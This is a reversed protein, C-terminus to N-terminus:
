LKPLCIVRDIIKQIIIKSKFKKIYYEINQASKYDPFEQKFVLKLPLFKRTYNSKGQSHDIIRQKINTTSGVYYKKNSLQLIYVWCM